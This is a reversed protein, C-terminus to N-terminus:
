GWTRHDEAVHEFGDYESIHFKVDDPIEVIGLQSYSGGAETGLLEVIAVLDPDARDETLSYYSLYHIDDGAHGKAYYNWHNSHFAHDAKVKDYEIGKRQLLMEFAQDSLSFGGYCRNIVVKM